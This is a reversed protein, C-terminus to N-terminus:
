MSWEALAKRRIHSLHYLILDFAKWRILSRVVSLFCFREQSLLRPGLVTARDRRDEMTERRGMLGDGAAHVKPGEDDGTSGFISSAARILRLWNEETMELEDLPIGKECEGCNSATECRGALSLEQSPGDASKEGSSAARQALSVAEAAYGRRADDSM